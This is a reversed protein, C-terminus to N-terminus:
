DASADTAPANPLYNRETTGSPPAATTTGGNRRDAINVIRRRSSEISISHHHNVFVRHGQLFTIFQLMGSIM